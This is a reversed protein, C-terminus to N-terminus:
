QVVDKPGLWGEIVRAAAVPLVLHEHHLVDLVNVLPAPLTKVRPLNRASLVVGRDVGPLVVLASRVGLRELLAAMERTQPQEFHLDQLLRIQGSAAKASLASRIAQRRMKKPMRQSYDRPKPGHAVGGGTWHPAATSGQRARGTGKQRWPKRGGWDLDGRTQTSHTGQRRNALHRVVAQHMLPVSPELGFVADSLEVEEIIEGALNY